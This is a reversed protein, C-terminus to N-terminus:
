SFGPILLYFQKSSFQQLFFMNFRMQHAAHLCAESISPPYLKTLHFWLQVRQIAYYLSNVVIGHTGKSTWQMFVIDATFNAPPFM